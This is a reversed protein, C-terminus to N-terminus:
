RIGACPERATGASYTNMCSDHMPPSHPEAMMTAKLEEVIKDVTDAESDVPACCPECSKLDIDTFDTIKTV